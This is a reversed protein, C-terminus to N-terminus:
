HTWMCQVRVQTMSVVDSATNYWNQELRAALEREPEGPQRGLLRCAADIAEVLATGPELTYGDRGPSEGSKKSAHDPAISTARRALAECGSLSFYQLTRLHGAVLLAVNSIPKPFM